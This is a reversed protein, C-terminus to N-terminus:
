EGSVLSIPRPDPQPDPRPRGFWWMSFTSVVEIGTWTLRLVLAVVVALGAAIPEDLHDAFRPTLFLQLVLERVGLGAPAFLIAFGLSYALGIAALDGLYTPGTWPLPQPTVAAVTLGVSLGLLCWGVVGHLVGQALLLISPTPLPPADPARQKATLYVALKHLLALVLPFAAFGILFMTNASVEEPLIELYPLLLLGVLAGSAMSTLTEYTATIGVALRTGPTGLMAVRIIVVAIKGPIFKGFQSVYYARLGRFWTVAVGEYRLLRVWFAGWCAHALLYLVGALLLQPIRLRFELSSLEPQRLITRFQLGVGVIVALALLSQLMLWLRRRNGRFMGPM